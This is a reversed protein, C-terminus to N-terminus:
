TDLYGLADHDMFNIAASAVKLVPYIDAFKGIGTDRNMECVLTHVQCRYGTTERGVNLRDDRSM